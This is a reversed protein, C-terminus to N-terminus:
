VGVRGRKRPLSNYGRGRKRPLSPGAGCPTPPHPSLNRGQRLDDRGEAARAAGLDPRMERRPEIREVGGAAPREQLQDGAAQPDPYRRAEGLEGEGFPAACLDRLDLLHPVGECWGVGGEEVPEFAAGRRRRG